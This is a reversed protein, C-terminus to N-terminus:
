YSLLTRFGPSENIANNSSIPFDSIRHQTIDFFEIRLLQTLSSSLAAIILSILLGSEKLSIGNTGGPSLKSLKISCSGNPKCVTRDVLNKAMIREYHSASNKVSDTGYQNLSGSIIGFLVLYGIIMILSSKGPM